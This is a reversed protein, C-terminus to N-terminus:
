NHFTKVRSYRKMVKRERIIIIILIFNFIVWCASAFFVIGIFVLYLINCFKFIQRKTETELDGGRICNSSDDKKVENKEVEFFDNNNFNLFMAFFKGM